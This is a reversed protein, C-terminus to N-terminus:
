SNRPAARANSSRLAWLVVLGVAFLVTDVWLGFPSWSGGEPIRLIGTGWSAVGIALEPGAIAIPLLFRRWVSERRRATWLGVLLLVLGYVLSLLPKWNVEMSAAPPPPSASYRIVAEIPGDITLATPDLATRPVDGTTREDFTVSTGADAWETWDASAQARHFTTRDAHWTAGVTHDPDTGQLAVHGRFQHVYTIELSFPGNASRATLDTTRYRERAGVAMEQPLSVGTDADVWASWSPAATGTRVVGWATFAVPAGRGDLGDARVTAAFQHVYTVTAVFPATVVWQTANETAWREGALGGISTNVSLTSGDDVWSSWADQALDSGASARGTFAVAVPHGGPLGLFTLSAPHQLLYAATITSDAGGVTITHARAGGDDWALFALRSPGQLDTDTAEVTHTEGTRWQFQAPVAYWAYDVLVLGSPPQRTITYTVPPVCSTTFSWPNPVPGGVLNSGGDLDQGLTTVTHVTCPAFDQLHALTLVTRAGDWTGTLSIPPSITATTVTADMPESFTIAIPAALAVGGDGNAPSTRVIHPPVCSTTFSWPNPTAGAVLPEGQLDFGQTISVTYTACERLGTHNLFLTQGNPWWPNAVLSPTM